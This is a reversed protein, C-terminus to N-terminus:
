VPGYGVVFPGRWKELKQPPRGALPGIAKKWSLYQSNTGSVRSLNIPFGRLLELLDPRLEGNSVAIQQGTWDFNLGLIGPEYPKVIRREDVTLVVRSLNQAAVLHSFATLIFFALYFRRKILM